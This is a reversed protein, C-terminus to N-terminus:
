SRNLAHGSVLRVGCSFDVCQAAVESARWRCGASAAANYVLGDPYSVITSEWELIKCEAAVVLQNSCFISRRLPGIQAPSVRQFSFAPHPEKRIRGSVAGLNWSFSVGVVHDIRDSWLNDLRNRLSDRSVGFAV